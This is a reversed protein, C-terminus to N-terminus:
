SLRECNWDIADAITQQLLNLYIPVGDAAAERDYGILYGISDRGNRVGTIFGLLEDGRRVVSCRFDESLARELEPLYSPTLTSLRVKAHAHVDSYPEFLRDAHTALDTVREITCGAKALKKAQSKSNRRYKSEM